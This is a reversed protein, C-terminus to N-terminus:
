RFRPAARVDRFVNRSRDGAFAFTDQIHFYRGPTKFSHSGGMEYDLPGFVSNGALLIATNLSEQQYEEIREPFNMFLVKFYAAVAKM